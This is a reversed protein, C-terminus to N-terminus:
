LNQYKIASVNLGDIREREVSTDYKTLNMLYDKYEKDIGYPVAM